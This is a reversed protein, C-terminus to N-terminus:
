RSRRNLRGPPSSNLNLNLELVVTSQVQMYLSTRWLIILTQNPYLMSTKRVPLSMDLLFTCKCANCSPKIKMQNQKKINVIKMSINVDKSTETEIGNGLLSM